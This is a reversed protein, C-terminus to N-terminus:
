TPSIESETLLELGTLARRLEDGSVNGDIERLGTLAWALRAAEKDGDLHDVFRWKAEAVTYWGGRIGDTSKSGM